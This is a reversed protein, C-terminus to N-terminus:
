SFHATLRDLVEGFAEVSMQDPWGPVDQTPEDMGGGWYIFDCWGGTFLVVEGEEAGQTLRVGISDADIVERRDTKLVPPWGSGQDRWTVEGVTIGAQRWVEIRREIEIVALDLDVIGKM